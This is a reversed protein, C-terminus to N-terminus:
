ANTLKDEIHWGSMRPYLARCWRWWWCCIVESFLLTRSEELASTNFHEGGGLSDTNDLILIRTQSVFLFVPPFSLLCVSLLEALHTVSLSFQAVWQHPRHGWCLIEWLVDQRWPEQPRHHPLALSAPCQQTFFPGEEGCHSCPRGPICMRHCHSSWLSRGWHDFGPSFDHIGSSNM